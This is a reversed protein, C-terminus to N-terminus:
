LELGPTDRHMSTTPAPAPQNRHTLAKPALGPPSGDGTKPTQLKDLIGIATARVREATAQVVEVPSKGPVSAAWTAVYPVTYDSTDLGHAAGIMLAVSEAEVEAIGRHLTADAAPATSLDPTQPAHLLIHALEHSLTKVQAADDMDTRMSVDRSLFDTLGNAEGISAATSVLRLEYGNATIQDALADWLGDPAQGALLTPRPIEPVPGGETQSVDWVHAQKLGVMRSRITEAPRPREARALRRWSDQITPTASAFRATVPALIAYGSQGKMVHRGLGLWQKFGAVYTPTPEPVRGEAYAAAHAMAILLSNNFSRSRFQAAFTMARRWDDSTVLASVADTLREHLADLKADRAPHDRANHDNAHSPTGTTM